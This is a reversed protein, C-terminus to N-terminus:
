IVRDEKYYKSAWLFFIGASSVVASAISLSLRQGHAKATRCSNRLEDTLNPDSLSCKVTLQDGNELLPLKAAIALDAIYAFVSMGIGLGIINAAFLLIAVSTARLEVNVVSQVIFFQAGVYPNQLVSACFFSIIMLTKNDSWLGILMLPLSLFLGFAPIWFPSLANKQSLRKILFGGGATGIISGTTIVAMFFIAADSASIDYNYQIFLTEYSVLAYGGFSVTASGIITLWYTKKTVLEKLANSLNAMKPLPVDLENSYGRNPEKLTMWIILGLIAGPTGVFIFTERWTFYKLLLGGGLYALVLGISVGTAYIGLAAPRDEAKFYDSILSNAPPTCGAEGIGVAVRTLLLTIFGVTFGCFVTAISWLITCFAIIKVRNYREALRAIPIGLTTYFLAFGFGSLLSFQFNSLGFEDIIPRGVVNILTRDIFNFTYVLTLAALSYARYGKTGFSQGTNVSDM